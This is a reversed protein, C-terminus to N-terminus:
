LGIAWRLGQVTIKKAAPYKTFEEPDHGLASYFVRGQGWKKIWVVPMTCSREEYVYQTDALVHVGPDMMMYYQESQYPFSAPIGQMIPSAFDKVQVQYDGVHPHGLFHGGVMWEYDINGRFADGMGGHIGGLAVGSHITKLLNKSQAETLAGMTWCPVILSFTKLHAEDNLSDLTMSIENEAGLQGMEDAFIKVIKEPQHGDWGGCLWLIKKM